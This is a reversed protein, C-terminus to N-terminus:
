RRKWTASQLEDVKQLLLVILSVESVSLSFVHLNINLAKNVDSNSVKLYNFVYEIPYKVM